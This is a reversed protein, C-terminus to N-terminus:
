GRMLAEIEAREKPVKATLVEPGRGTICVDDEIRIGIGRYRAPADSSQGIYLGPECTIVMGEALEVPQGEHEYAGVDHVDLGLFHGTGHMYYPLYRKDELALELPGEIINLEILGETLRRVATEHFLKISKGVVMQAIAESQASLVLDYLEAQANTFSGNVPFTRTIDGAYGLVECGADILVLDGSRLRDTRDIYHLICANDGGGVITQYAISPSGDMRFQHEVVSALQDETMGPECAQMAAIHGQASIRGAEKMIDIEQRSKILRAQSLHRSLDARHSLLDSRRSRLGKAKIAQDVIATSKQCGFPYEVWAIEALLTKLETDLAELPYGQDIGLRHKVYDPGMRRGTWVEQEPHKPRVFLRDPQGPGIVLVADPETFGTLYWFDSSQRFPYEADRNRIVEAAAAVIALSKEPMLAKLRQRREQYVHLSFM